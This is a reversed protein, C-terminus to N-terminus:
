GMCSRVLFKFRYLGDRITAMVSQSLFTEQTYEYQAKRAEFILGGRKIPTPTKKTIYTRPRILPFICGM